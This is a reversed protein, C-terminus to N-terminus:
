LAEFSEMEVATLRWEAAAVNARVQKPTSASAIVSAVIPHTLLWGLALDLLSRGREVAWKEYAGFGALPGSM